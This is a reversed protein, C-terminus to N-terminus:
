LFRPKPNEDRNFEWIEGHFGNYYNNYLNKHEKIWHIFQEKKLRGKEIDLNHSAFVSRAFKRIM